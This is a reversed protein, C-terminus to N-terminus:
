RGFSVLYQPDHVPLSKLLLQNILTFIATNAGIGLALSLVAVITFAPSKTLMRLSYRLDQWCADVISEWGISRVQHKVTEMTGMEARAAKLADKYSMGDRIRRQVSAELYGQLEENLERDLHERRFLMKMGLQINRFLAM